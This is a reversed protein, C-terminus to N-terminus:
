GAAAFVKWGTLSFGKRNDFPDVTAELAVVPRATLHGYDRYVSAFLNVEVFGTYDALTLFKMTGQATPHHRDAVVLGCVRVAKGYLEQQRRTLEEISWFKSWDVRAAFYDLPHVSVPFGLVEQEWRARAAESVEISEPLDSEILTPRVASFSAELRQM